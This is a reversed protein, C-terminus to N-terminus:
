FTWDDGSTWSNVIESQLSKDLSSEPACAYSENPVIIELNNLTREIRDYTGNELSDLPLVNSSSDNFIIFTNNNYFSQVKNNTLFNRLYIQGTYSSLDSIGACDGYINSSNNSIRNDSIIISYGAQLSLGSAQGSNGNNESFNNMAIYGSVALDSIMLGASTPGFTSILDRNLQSDTGGGPRIYPYSSDPLFDPPPSVNTTGIGYKQNGQAILVTPSSTASAEDTRFGVTSNNPAWSWGNVFIGAIFYYYDKMASLNYQYRQQSDTADPSNEWLQQRSDTWAENQSLDCNVVEFNDSKGSILAGFASDKESSQCIFNNNKLNFNKCNHIHIGIATGWLRFRSMSAHLFLMGAMSTEQNSFQAGTRINDDRVQMLNALFDSLLSEHDITSVTINNSNDANSIFLDHVSQFPVATSTLGQVDTEHLFNGSASQYSASCNEIKFRETNKFIMGASRHGSNNEAKCDTLNINQSKNDQDEGNCIFGYGGTSSRELVPGHKSIENADQDTRLDDDENIVKTSCSNNSFTSYNFNCNSCSKLIAGRGTNTGFNNLCNVNEFNINSVSVGYFGSSCIGETTAPFTRKTTSPAPFPSLNRKSRVSPTGAINRSFSSNTFNIDYCSTISNSTDTLTLLGFAATGGINRESSVNEGNLGRVDTLYIGTAYIAGRNFETKVNKLDIEEVTHAYTPSIITAVTQALFDPFTEIGSTIYDSTGYSFESDEITLDYCRQLQLGAAKVNGTIETTKCNKISISDCDRLSIGIAETRNNDAESSFDSNGISQIDICEIELNRIETALIGSYGYVNLPVPPIGSDLPDPRMPMFLDTSYGYDIEIITKLNALATRKEQGHGIIKCNIISAQKIQEFNLQSGSNPLSGSDGLLAMGVSCDYITSDYILIREVGKHVLIGCDFNRLHINSIVINKPQRLTSDAQLEAPSFGVEIGIWGSNNIDFNEIYNGGFNLEVHSTVIKIMPNGSAISTPNYLGGKALEWCGSRCINHTKNRIDTMNFFYHGNSRARNCLSIQSCDKTFISISIPILFLFIKKM